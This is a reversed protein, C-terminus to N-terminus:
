FEVELNITEFKSASFDPITDSAISQNNSNKISWVIKNDNRGGYCRVMVTTDAPLNFDMSYCHREFSVNGWGYYPRCPKSVNMKCGGPYNNIKKLHVKAWAEPILNLLSGGQSYEPWYQSHSARMRDARFRSSVKYVGNNDTTTTTENVYSLCGFEIDYHGCKDIAITAGAIPIGTESELVKGEWFTEGPGNGTNLETKKCALFVLLAMLVAVKKM